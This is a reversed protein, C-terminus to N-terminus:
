QNGPLWPWKFGQIVAVLLGQDGSQHSKRSILSGLWWSALASCPGQSGQYWPELGRSAQRTPGDGRAAFWFVWALWRPGAAGPRRWRWWAGGRFLWDWGAEFGRYAPEIMRGVRNGTGETELFGLGDFLGPGSVLLGGLLGLRGVRWPGTDMWNGPDRLKWAAGVAMVGLLWPALPM